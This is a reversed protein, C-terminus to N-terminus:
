PRHHLAEAIKTQVVVHIVLGDLHVHVHRQMMIKRYLVNEVILEAGNVLVPLVRQQMDEKLHVEMKARKVRVETGINLHQVHFKQRVYTEWIDPIQVIANRQM